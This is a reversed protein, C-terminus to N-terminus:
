MLKECWKWECNVRLEGELQPVLLVGRAVFMALVRRIARGWGGRFTRTQMGVRWGHRFFGKDDWMLGRVLSKVAKLFCDDVHLSMPPKLLYVGVSWSQTVLRWRRYGLRSKVVQVWPVGGQAFIPALDIDLSSGSPECYDRYSNTKVWFGRQSYMMRYM